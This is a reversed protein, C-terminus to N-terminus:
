YWNGPSYRSCWRHPYRGAPSISLYNRFNQNLSRQLSADAYMAGAGAVSILLINGILLALVMWKKNLLKLFVFKLM